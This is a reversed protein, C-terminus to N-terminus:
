REVQVRLFVAILCQRCLALEQIRDPHIYSQLLHTPRITPQLKAVM